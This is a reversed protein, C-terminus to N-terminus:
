GKDVPLNPTRKLYSSFAFTNWVLRIYNEDALSRFKWMRYFRRIIRGIKQVFNEHFLNPQGGLIDALVADSIKMPSSLEEIDIKMGLQDICLRTMVKAFEVIRSEKMIPIVKEWNVNQSESKLFFAWDLLHRVCIGEKIFHRQAHKILFLANFDASPNQLKTGGIPRYGEIIQEQLLQETRVGLKTSDFSTLFNHNEITLGKYYLHSHKYGAEEMKGGIEVTIKDGDEKKGMLYCDLDGSERHYPNPYYSAYALGKLVATQIGRESLKEAFGVAVAEKKRMQQEISLANSLWKLSIPKPPAIEKPIVKIKDFVIAVVGQKKSLAYFFEWDRPTFHNFQSWDVNSDNVICSLIHFFTTKYRAM